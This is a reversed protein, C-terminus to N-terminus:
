KDEWFYDEIPEVFGDLEDAAADAESETKFVDIAYPMGSDKDIGIVMYANIM